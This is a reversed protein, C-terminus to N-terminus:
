NLNVNEEISINGNKRKSKLRTSKSWQSYSIEM